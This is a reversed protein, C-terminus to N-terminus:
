LAVSLEQELKRLKDIIGPDDEAGAGFKDPDIGKLMLKTKTTLMLTPNGHARELIIKDIMTKIQGSM